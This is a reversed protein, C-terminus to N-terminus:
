SLWLFHLRGHTIYTSGSGVTAGLVISSVIDKSISWASNNPLISCNTDEIQISLGLLEDTTSKPAPDIESLIVHGLPFSQSSLCLQVALLFLEFLLARM